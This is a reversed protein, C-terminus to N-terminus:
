EDDTSNQCSSGIEKKRYVSVSNQDARWGRFPHDESTRYLKLLWQWLMVKKLFKNFCTRASCRCNQMVQADCLIRERPGAARASPRSGSSQVLKGRAPCDSGPPTGHTVTGSRTSTKWAVPLWAAKVPLRIHIM